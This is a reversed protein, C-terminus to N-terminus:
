LVSILYLEFFSRRNGYFIYKRRINNIGWASFTNGSVFTCDHRFCISTCIWIINSRTGHRDYPFLKRYCLTNEIDQKLINQISHIGWLLFPLSIVGWAICYRPTLYGEMIHMAYVNPIVAFMCTITIMCFLISKQKQFM